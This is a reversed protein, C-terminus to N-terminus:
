DKSVAMLFRICLPIFIILCFCFLITLFAGKPWLEIMERISFPNGELINISTYAGVIMCCLLDAISILGWVGMERCGKRYSDNIKRSDPFEEWGENKLKEIFVKPDDVKGKYTVDFMRVNTIFTTQYGRLKKTKRNWEIHTAFLSNNKPHMLPGGIKEWHKGFPDTNFM